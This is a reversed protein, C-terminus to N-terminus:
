HETFKHNMNNRNFCVILNTKTSEDISHLLKDHNRNKYCIALDYKDSYKSAVEAAIGLALNAWPNHVHPAHTKTKKFEFYDIDEYKASVSNKPFLFHNSTFILENCRDMIAENYNFSEALLYIYDKDEKIMYIERLIDSYQEPNILQNIEDLTITLDRFKLKEFYYKLIVYQNRPITVSFSKALSLSLKQDKINGKIDLHYSDDLPFSGMESGFLNTGKLKYYVARDTMLLGHKASGFATDDILLVVRDGQAFNAYSAIANTLKKESIARGFYITTYPYSMGNPVLLNLYNETFYFLEDGSVMSM